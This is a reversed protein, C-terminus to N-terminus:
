LLKALEQAKLAAPTDGYQEQVAEVWKQAQPRANKDGLKLACEALGVLALAVRDRDTTDLASVEAFSLQAQRTAGEALQAQALGLRAGFRMAPSAAQQLQGEFFTKAAPVSGSALQCYGDGLRAAAQVAELRARAPDGEPLTALTRPLGAEVASYVQRAEDVQRAALFAEAADIGAELCAAPPYGRSGKELERYLSRYREAADAAEGSLRAARAELGRAEPVGRGTPFDLLYREAEERARAYAAPERAGQLIEARAARLRAEAQVPARAVPDAAALRYSAAANQYDARDFYAEGDHFAPPTQGFVIRQVALADIERTESGIQLKVGDLSDQVVHGTASTLEGRKNQYSVHDPRSPKEQAAPAATALALALAALAARPRVPRVPLSRPLLM